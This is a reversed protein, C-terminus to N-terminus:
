FPSNSSSFAVGSPVSDASSVNKQGNWGVPSEATMKGSTRNIWELEWTISGYLFRIVEMPWDGQCGYSMSDIIVNELLITYFPQPSFTTSSLGTGSSSVSSCVYVAVDAITVSAACANLLKTSTKDLAKRVTFLGHQCYSRRFAANEGVSPRALGAQAGLTHDFGILQILTQGSDIPQEGPIGDVAMYLLQGTSM